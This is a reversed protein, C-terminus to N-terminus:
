HRAQHKKQKSRFNTRHANKSEKERRVLIKKSGKFQDSLKTWHAFLREGHGGVCKACARRVVDTATSAEEVCKARAAMAGGRAAKLILNRAKPLVKAELWAARMTAEGFETALWNIFEDKEDRSLKVRDNRPKKLVAGSGGGKVSGGDAEMDVDAM